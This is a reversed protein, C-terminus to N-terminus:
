GLNAPHVPAEIHIIQIMFINVKFCPQKSERYRHNHFM